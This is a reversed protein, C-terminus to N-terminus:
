KHKIREGLNKRARSLLSEVAKEGKNMILAIEKQTKGEISSLIIATRQNEPLLDLQRFIRETAEQQELKVGPHDFEVNTSKGSLIRDLITRRRRKRLADICTNVAIRYIWTSVEADGRFSPLKDHVKLFVDQVCEEADERNNLYHLCLNYM